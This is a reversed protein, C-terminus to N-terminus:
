EDDPPAQEPQPMYFSVSGTVAVMSETVNKRDGLEKAIDDLAGRFAAHADRNFAENIVYLPDGEDEGGHVIGIQRKEQLWPRAEYEARASEAMQALGYIRQEKRVYPVRVSLSDVLSARMEAIAQQWDPHAMWDRLTRAPIQCDEAIQDQSKRGEFVLELAKKRGETWLLPRRKRQGPKSPM